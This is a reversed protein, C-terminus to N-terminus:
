KFWGPLDERQWNEHQDKISKEEMEKYEQIMKDQETKNDKFIDPFEFTENLLSIYAFKPDRERGIGYGYIRHKEEEGKKLFTKVHSVDVKYIKELYQKIDADTMQPHTEFLYTGKPLDLEPKIMRMWFLPLYIRLQPNGPSYLPYPPNVRKWLPVWRTLGHM